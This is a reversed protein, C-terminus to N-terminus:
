FIKLKIRLVPAIIGLGIEAVNRSHIPLPLHRFKAEAKEDPAAIVPGRDLKLRIEGLQALRLGERAADIKIRLIDLRAEDENKRGAFSGHGERVRREAGRIGVGLGSKKASAQQRSLYIDRAARDGSFGGTVVIMVWLKQRLIYIFARAEMEINRARRTM